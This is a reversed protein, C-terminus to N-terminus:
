LDFITFKKQKREFKRLIKGEQALIDQIDEKTRRILRVGECTKCYYGEGPEDKFFWKNCNMCNYAVYIQDHDCVPCMMGYNDSSFWSKCFKCYLTLPLNLEEELELLEIRKIVQEKDIGNIRVKEARYNRIKEFWVQGRKEALIYMSIGAIISGIILIIWPAWNGWNILYNDVNVTIKKEARNGEKDYAVIKIEYTGDPILTTDWEFSLVGTDNNFVLKEKDVIENEIYIQFKALDLEVDDTINAEIMNISNVMTGNKPNSIEIEPPIFDISKDYGIYINSLLWGYGLGITYGNTHLNFMIMVVDESYKSIDFKESGSLDESDYTYDKLEVWSEGYNDSISVVCKDLLDQTYGYENELSIEHDFELYVDYESKLQLPKTILRADWNQGYGSNIGGYSKGIGGYLYEKGLRTMPHWTNDGIFWATIGKPIPPGAVYYDNLANNSFEYGIKKNSERVSFELPKTEIFEILSNDRNYWQTSNTNKGDSVHFMFSRNAMNDIVLIKSFFIGNDELANSNANWDGYINVMTYNKGDMELYVFDPYNNDSDYYEISFTFKEYKSDELPTVDLNPNFVIEPPNNNTKNEIAFYDLMFGKYNIPDFTEDISTVFRFQVYNGIYQTMNIEELFWEREENTYTKITTWGSYNLNMRLYVYDNSNISTRLGFKAFPRSNENLQTLNILPSTLSGNPYPDTIMVPQYTYNTPSSHDMGLYLSKWEDDYLRSRDDNSNIQTLEGWGTGNYNWDGLGDNFSHNYPFQKSDTPFVITINLVGTKPYRAGHPGDSAVFFYSYNGKAEFQVQESWYLVGETYNANAFPNFVSLTYNRGTEVISVYIEQPPANSTDNDSYQIFFLYRDITYNNEPAEGLFEQYSMVTANKVRGGYSVETINLIPAFENIVISVNLKFTSNGEIAKIVIISETENEKPIFYFYNFDGNLKRSSQLLLPEGHSDSENSFLYLDFDASDDVDTLNFIYQKNPTLNIRRAFVHPGLPNTSSSLLTGNITTNARMIKTLADIAGQINLRGYGEHVDTLGFGWFPSFRDPSYGSEDVDTDPDDERNLNTESATMLLISKITKVWNTLNLKNWETWNGCKAEILINIAASVIASAISTGYAATT